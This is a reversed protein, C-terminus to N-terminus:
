VDAIAEIRLLHFVKNLIEKASLREHSTASEDESSADFEELESSRVRGAIESYNRVTLSSTSSRLRRHLGSGSDSDRMEDDWSQQGGRSTQFHDMEFEYCSNCMYADEAANSGVPFMMAVSYKKKLFAVLQSSLRIKGKAHSPFRGGKSEGNHRWPHCCWVKPKTM